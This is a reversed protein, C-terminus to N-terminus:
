QVSLSVAKKNQFEFNRMMKVCHIFVTSLNYNDSQLKLFNCINLKMHNNWTEAM